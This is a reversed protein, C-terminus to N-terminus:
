QRVGAAEFAEAPDTYHRQDVVQGQELTYVVGFRNEVAVGSGKGKASQGLVAVVRNGGADIIEEAWIKWDVFDETWTRVWEGFGEQGIYTKSDSAERSPTLTANPAFLDRDFLETVRGEDIRKVLLDWGRRVIEVNEESMPATDRIKEALEVIGVHEM